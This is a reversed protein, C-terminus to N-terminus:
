VFVMMFSDCNQFLLLLFFINKATQHSRSQAKTSEFHRKTDSPTENTVFVNSYTTM